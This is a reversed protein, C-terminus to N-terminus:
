GVFHDYGPADVDVPMGARVCRVPSVGPLAQVMEGIRTCQVGCDALWKLDGARDPALTFLLEYDDGGALAFRESAGGGFLAQMAPSAPLRDLHLVAACSSAQCLKGLDALLGDSVDMASSALQRLARGLAIRPEPREFRQRLWEGAVGGDLHRQIVALGAAAEGPIGSVYLVDGARAGSRKLVHDTEVLGLVQVTVVLPGRVTDGGVLAVNHLQALDYFGDAFGQLWHPDSRPLSLSLLAWAPEAGMAALDSLNVALARHGIHRAATGVPFHVGEVVTDMAAVLRRDAPVQLVAADDGVGLLVDRRPSHRSFYRAIIEFEGQADAHM